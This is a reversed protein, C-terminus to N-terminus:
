NSESVVIFSMKADHIQSSQQVRLNHLYIDEQGLDSGLFWSYGEVKHYALYGVYEQIHTM